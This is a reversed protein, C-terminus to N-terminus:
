SPPPSYTVFGVVLTFGLLSVPDRSSISSQRRSPSRDAAAAAVAPDHVGCRAIEGNAFYGCVKGSPEYRRVTRSDFSDSQFLDYGRGNCACLLCGLVQKTSGESSGSFSAELRRRVRESLHLELDQTAGEKDRCVWTLRQDPSIESGLAVAGSNNDAGVIPRVLYGNTSDSGWTSKWSPSEEDDDEEKEDEKKGDDDKNEDDDSRLADTSKPTLAAMLNRAASRDSDDLNSLTRMLHELPTVKSGNSAIVSTVINRDSSAIAIPPTHLPRCGQAALSEIRVGGGQLCLVVAGTEYRGTSGGAAAEDTAAYHFLAQPHEMESWSSIGGVVSCNPFAFDLGDILAQLNRFGPSSFVVFSPPDRSIAEAPTGALGFRAHWVEPPDDADPLSNDEVHTAVAVSQPFAGLAVCAAAKREVEKPQTDDNSDDDADEEGICGYASCGVVVRLSPVRQRLTAVTDDYSDNLTSSVFCIAVTPEEANSPMRAIADDCARQLTNQTGEVLATAWAPLPTSPSSAASSASASSRPVLTAASSRHRRRAGVKGFKSSSSSSSGFSPLIHNKMM